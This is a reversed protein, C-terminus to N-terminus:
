ENQSLFQTLTDKDHRAPDHIGGHHEDTYSWWIQKSAPDRKQFAKVRNVLDLMEEDGGFTDATPPPGGKARKLPPGGYGKGGGKSYDQMGYDGYDPAPRKSAFGPAPSMVAGFAEEGLSGLENLFGIIFASDYKTPDNFRGGNAQVFAAWANKWPKSHKQGFKIFDSFAAGDDVYGGQLPMAHQQIPMPASMPMAGIKGKGMSKGMSKGNSGKKGASKGSPRADMTSLFHELTAPDHKSPDKVGGLHEDCYSWWAEKYSPSSRQLQKVEEVLQM